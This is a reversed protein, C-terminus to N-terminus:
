RASGSPTASLAGPDGALATGGPTGRSHRAWVVAAGVLAVLSLPVAAPVADGLWVADGKLFELPALFLLGGLYLLFRAGDRRVSRAAWVVGLLVVLALVEYVQAPHLPVGLPAQSRPDHFVVAWAATTPTGYGSGNLLSGVAGIIQGLVLGPAAADAFRWFGIGQSRCFWLAVGWGALLAGHFTLGSWVNVLDRPHMAFWVPDFLLAYGLRAGVLGALVVPTLVDQVWTPDLGRRRFETGAMRSAAYIAVLWAVALTRVGLPGIQALVPYM